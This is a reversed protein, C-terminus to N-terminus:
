SVPALLILQIYLSNITVMQVLWSYKRPPIKAYGFTLLALICLPIYNLGVNTLKVAQFTIAFTMLLMSLAMLFALIGHIMFTKARAPVIAQLWEFVVSSVVLLLVIPSYNAQLVFYVFFSILLGNILHTTRYLFLLKPMTTANESITCKIDARNSYIILCHVINIIVFSIYLFLM